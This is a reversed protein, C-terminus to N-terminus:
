GDIPRFAALEDGRLWAVGGVDERCTEHVARKADFEWHRGTRFELEVRGREAAGSGEVRKAVVIAPRPTAAAEKSQRFRLAFVVAGGAAAVLVVPLLYASELNISLFLVAITALVILTGLVTDQPVTPDAPLPETMAREFGEHDALRDFRELRESFTRPRKDEGVVTGCCRCVAAEAALRVGCNACREQMAVAV